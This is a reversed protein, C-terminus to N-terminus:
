ADDPARLGAAIRAGVDDVIDRPPQIWSEFRGGIALKVLEGHREEGIGADSLCWRLVQTCHVYWIDGARTRQAVVTVLQAVAREWAALQAASPEAPLAFGEYRGALQELWERWEVLAGAVRILTEDLTGISHTSCCWYSVPGGGIEGEDRAWRWGCAWRGFQTVLARTISDSWGPRASRVEWSPSDDSLSILQRVFERAEEPNFAHRRPDVESWALTWPALENAM